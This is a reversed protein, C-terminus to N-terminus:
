VGFIIGNSTDPWSTHTIWCTTWLLLLPIIRGVGHLIHVIFQHWASEGHERVNHVHIAHTCAHMRQALSAWEGHTEAGLKSQKFICVKDQWSIKLRLALAGGRLETTQRPHVVSDVRGNHTLALYNSSFVFEVSTVQDCTYCFYQHSSKIWNQFEFMLSYNSLIHSRIQSFRGSTSFYTKRSIPVM